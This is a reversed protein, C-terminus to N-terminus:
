KRRLHQCVSVNAKVLYQKIALSEHVFWHYNTCVRGKTPCGVEGKDSVSNRLRNNGGSGRKNCSIGYVMPLPLITYLGVQGKCLIAMASITHHIAYLLPSPLPIYRACYDHLVIAVTRANCIPPPLLWMIILENVFANFHVFRKYLGFQCRGKRGCIRSLDNRSMGMASTSTTKGPRLTLM